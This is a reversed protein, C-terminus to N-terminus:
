RATKALIEALVSALNLWSSVSAYPIDAEFHAQMGKSMDLVREEMTPRKSKNRRSFTTFRRYAVPAIEVGAWWRLARPLTGNM